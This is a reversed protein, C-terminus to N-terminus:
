KSPLLNRTTVKETNMLLGTLELSSEGIKNVYVLSDCVCVMCVCLLVFSESMPEAAVMEWCVFVLPQPKVLWVM